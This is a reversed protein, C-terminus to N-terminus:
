SHRVIKVSQSRRESVVSLIVPSSEIGSLDIYSIEQGITEFRLLQGYLNYISMQGPLRDFYRITLLNTDASLQWSFLLEDSIQESLSEGQQTLDNGYEETAVVDIRDLLIEGGFSEILLRNQGKKLRVPMDVYNGSFDIESGTPPFAVKGMGADPTGLAASVMEDTRNAYRLRLIYDDPNDIEVVISGMSRGAPIQLYEGGSASASAVVDCGPSKLSEAEFSALIVMPYAELMLDDLYFNVTGGTLNIGYLGVEAETGGAKFILSRSYWYNNNGFTSTYQYGVDEGDVYLRAQNKGSTALYGTLRYTEGPTLGSVKFYVRGEAGKKSTLIRGFSQGNHAPINSGVVAQAGGKETFLVNKDGSEFDANEILISKSPLAEETKIRYEAATVEGGYYTIVKEANSQYLKALDDFKQEDPYNNRIHPVNKKNNIYVGEGDLWVVENVKEPLGKMGKMIGLLGAATAATCDGDYGILSAIKMTEYYDNRGYLLSLITFGGNVDYATQINDMLFINRRSKHLEKAATRWDDPYKMFLSFALDYMRRVWSGVPLVVSAKNLVVVADTEFYAISYATGYFKGWLQSDFDGTVSAFRDTMVAARVPMGPYLCGVTENEIYAETCWGLNNGYELRGTFPPIWGRDNIIKMASYGGGWDSVQHLMWMDAIDSHSPQAGMKDYILQNFFDIHYDDDSFIRGNAVVFNEGASGHKEGGGYPGACLHFWEDPMGIYPNSGGVFEYGSLVGAVQSVICARTKDLYEEKTLTKFSQASLDCIAFVGSLCLVITKKKM